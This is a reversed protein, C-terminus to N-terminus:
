IMLDIVKNVVIYLMVVFEMRKFDFFTILKDSVWNSTLLVVRLDLKSYSCTWYNNM